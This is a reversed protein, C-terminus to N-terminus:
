RAYTMDKVPWRKPMRELWTLAVRQMGYTAIRTTLPTKMSEKREPM